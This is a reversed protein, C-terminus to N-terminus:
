HKEIWVSHNVLGLEILASARRQGLLSGNNEVKKQITICTFVLDADLITYSYTKMSPKKEM